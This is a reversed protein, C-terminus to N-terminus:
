LLGLSPPEAHCQHLGYSGNRTPNGLLGSPPQLAIVCAMAAITKQQVHLPVAQSNRRIQNCGM